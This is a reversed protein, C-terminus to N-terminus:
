LKGQKPHAFQDKQTKPDRDLCVFDKEILIHLGSDGTDFSAEFGVRPSDPWDRVWIEPLRVTIKGKSFSAELDRIDADAVLCYEFLQEPFATTACLRGQEALKSVESKRLRMRVSNDEIRIKM